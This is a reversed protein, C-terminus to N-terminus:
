ISESSTAWLNSLSRTLLKPPMCSSTPPPSLPLLLPPPVPDTICFLPIPCWGSGISIANTFAWEAMNGHALIIAGYAKAQAVETSDMSPFNDLLAVAGNATALHGSFCAPRLCCYNCNGCKCPEIHVFHPTSMTKYCSWTTQDPLLLAAKAQGTRAYRLEPMTWTCYPAAHCAIPHLVFCADAMVTVQTATM